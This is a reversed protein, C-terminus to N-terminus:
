PWLEIQGRWGSRVEEAAESLAGVHAPQSVLFFAVYPTVFATVQGSGFEEGIRSALFPVFRERPVRPFYQYVLLSHGHEYAKQLEAWYVYASSGRRGPPTGHVEIGIDPDFFILDCRHLAKLAATLYAERESRNDSVFAEFYTAGPMLEWQWAYQVMPRIWPQSLRRLKDYLEPDLHQWHSPKALYNRLGGDDSRDDGTLLWCVGISLGSARNLTRLLGYKRYDNIDGFYQNKM